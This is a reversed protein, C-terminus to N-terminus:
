EHDDEHRNVEAVVRMAIKQIFQSCWATCGPCGQQAHQMRQMFEVADQWTVTGLDVETPKEDERKRSFEHEVWADLGKAMDSAIFSEWLQETYVARPKGSPPPLWNNM